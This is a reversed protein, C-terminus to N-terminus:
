ACLACAGDVLISQVEVVSAVTAAAWALHASTREIWQGVTNELESWDDQMTRLVLPDVGSKKLSNELVHLSAVDLLQGPKGDETWIPLTGIAAARRNPGSVIKSDLVLGGGIFSGVFFYGFDTFEHGRGLLHEAVCAATADNELQVELGTDQSISRALDFSRWENMESTPAEVIELWSWLENPLAVGIGALRLRSGAKVEAVCKGLFTVIKDSLGLVFALNGASM